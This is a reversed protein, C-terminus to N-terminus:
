LWRASIASVTLPLFAEVERPKLAWQAWVMQALTVFIYAILRREYVLM